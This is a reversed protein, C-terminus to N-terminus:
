GDGGGELRGGAALWASVEVPARRAVEPVARIVREAALCRARWDVAEVCTETGRGSCEGGHRRLVKDCRDCREDAM